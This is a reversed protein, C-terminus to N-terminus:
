RGEFRALMARLQDNQTELKEALAARLQNIDENLGVVTDLYDSREDDFPTGIGKRSTKTRRFKLDVRSANPTKKARLDYMPRANEISQSAAAAQPTGAPVVADPGLKKDTREEFVDAASITEDSKQHANIRVVVREIESMPANAIPATQAVAASEAIAPFPAGATLSTEKDLPNAPERIVSAAQPERKSRFKSIINWPSM